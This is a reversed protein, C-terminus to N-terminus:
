YIADAITKNAHGFPNVWWSAIADIYAKGNEDWLLAGEGRAIAIPPSATKHQTYPHWLHKQDRDSLTM